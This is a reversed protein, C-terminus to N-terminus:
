VDEEQYRERLFERCRDFFAHYPATRYDPYTWRSDQWGHGRYYLTVEAFIGDSLYIRHDRNKTTALVLKAETLYGPDCNIPRVVDGSKYEDAYEVEWGNTRQKIEALDARDILKEAAWFQKKLNLGMEQDYYSTQNFDFIESECAIPGWQSVVRDHIWELASASMSLAGVILLAPRQSRIEGM